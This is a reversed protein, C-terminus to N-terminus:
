AEGGRKICAADARDLREIEAVIMAAAKVLFGRRKSNSYIVPSRMVNGNHPRKDYREDWPWPDLFRVGSALDERRYVYDPAAYCVAAWLIEFNDHEDDHAADYGRAVQRGREDDIELIVNTAM